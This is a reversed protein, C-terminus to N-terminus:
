STAFLRLVIDEREVEEDVQCVRWGLKNVCGFPSPDASKRVVATAGIAIYGLPGYTVMNAHTYKRIAQNFLVLLQREIVIDIAIPTHFM